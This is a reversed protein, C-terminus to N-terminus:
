SGIPHQVLRHPPKGRRSKCCIESRYSESYPHHESEYEAKFKSWKIPIIDQKYSGQLYTETGIYKTDSRAFVIQREKMFESLGDIDVKSLRDLAYNFAKIPLDYM